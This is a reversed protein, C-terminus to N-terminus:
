GRKGSEPSHRLAIWALARAFAPGLAVVAATGGLMGQGGGGWANDAIRGHVLGGVFLTTTAFRFAAHAAWARWAGGDRVWLAGFVTGVLGAAVVSRATADGRGLAAGASTAGCALCQGLPSISGDLVRLTMGHLLLEDRWAVLASAAFGILLVSARTDAPAILMGRSVVLLAFLAGSMTLGVGAGALARVVVRKGSADEPRSWVVGLRSCGWEVLVTQGIAGALSQAELFIEILRCGAWLLLGCAAAGLRPAEPESSAPAVEPGAAEPM